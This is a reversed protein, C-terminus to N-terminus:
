PLTQNMEDVWSRDTASEFYKRFWCIKELARGYEQSDRALRGEEDHLFRAIGNVLGLYDGLFGEETDAVERLVRLSDVMYKGDHDQMILGSLLRVMPPACCEAKEVIEPQLIVRPYIACTSELKYAHIMAPGFVKGERHYVDGVAIGGRVLRELRLMRFVIARIHFLLNM